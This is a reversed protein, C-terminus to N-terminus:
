AEPEARLYQRERETIEEPSHTACFVLANWTPCANGEDGPELVPSCTSTENM